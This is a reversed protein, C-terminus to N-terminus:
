DALIICSLIVWGSLNQLFLHQIRRCNVSMLNGRYMKFHIIEKCTMYTQKRQVSTVKVGEFVNNIQSFLKRM